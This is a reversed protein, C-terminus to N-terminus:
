GKRHKRNSKSKIKQSTYDVISWGIIFILFALVLAGVVLGFFTAINLYLMYWELTETDGLHIVKFLELFNM